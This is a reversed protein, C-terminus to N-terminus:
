SSVGSCHCDAVVVSRASGSLIEANYNNDLCLTTLGTILMNQVPPVCINSSGDSNKSCFKQKLIVGGAPPILTVSNCVYSSNLDVLESTGDDVVPTDPTTETTSPCSDM